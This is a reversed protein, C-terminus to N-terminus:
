SIHTECQPPRRQLASEEREPSGPFDGGRVSTRKAQAAGSAQKRPQPLYDPFKEKLMPRCPLGVELGM